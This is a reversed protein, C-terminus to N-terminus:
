KKKQKAKKVVTKKKKEEKTKTEKKDEKKKSNNFMELGKKFVEGLIMIYTGSSKIKEKTLNLLDDTKTVIREAASIIKQTKRFSSIIYFLTVCLFVTLAVISISLVFNLIDASTSIM